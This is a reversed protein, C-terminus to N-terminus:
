FFCFGSNSFLCLLPLSQPFFFHSSTLSSNGIVFPQKPSNSDSLASFASGSTRHAPSSASSSPPSSLLGDLRLGSFHAGSAAEMVYDITTSEEPMASKVCQERNTSSESRRRFVGSQNLRTWRLSVTGNQRRALCCPAYIERKSTEIIIIKLQKKM